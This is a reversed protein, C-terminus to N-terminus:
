KCNANIFTDCQAPIPCEILLEVCSGSFTQICSFYPDCAPPAETCAACDCVVGCKLANYDLCADNCLSPATASACGESSRVGVFGIVLMVLYWLLRRM